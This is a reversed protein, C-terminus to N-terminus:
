LIKLGPINKFHEDKTLLQLKYRICIRAILLDVPPVTIGKERLMADLEGALEWDEEHFNFRHVANFLSLVKKRENNRLGRRIEMMVPGCTAALDNELLHRVVSVIRPTKGRLADIWASTDILILGDISQPM